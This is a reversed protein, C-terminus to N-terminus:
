SGPKANLQGQTQDETRIGQNGPSNGIQKQGAVYNENGAECEFTQGPSATNPYPNYHLYNLVGPGNAPASAPVGVNNPGVGQSAPFGFPNFNIFRQYTGLSNGFRLIDALNRFLLTAYNCVSQAPAIFGLAPDAVQVADTLDEIGQRASADNALDLLAQATPDLEANFDPALRLAKIGVSTADALAPAYRRTARAGPQLNAFFTATHRFFPRVRPFVRNATELTPVSRSITDQIFPRAVDAFAGFTIDLGVFLQAQEEAVPAAEGAAASLGQVFGALDTQPSALNRMV